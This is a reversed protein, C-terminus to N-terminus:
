FVLERYPIITTYGKNALYDYMGSRYTMMVFDGGWAGLSKVEGEYDPFLADKVKPLQMFAGLQTQYDDLIIEFDELTSVNQLDIVMQNLRQILQKDKPKNKYHNSVVAQTDQKKNLYVFYLEDLFNWKLSIEQVINTPSNQFIIPSFHRACAVDYGSTKFTKHNLEFVDIDMWQALLDLLTSSSGLGWEQPYELKTELCYRKNKEFFHPKLELAQKLIHLLSEGLKRDTCSIIGFSILDIETSFWLTEDAKKATWELISNSSNSAEIVSLCQGRKTPLALAKAGDTVIYEGILLLKGNARYTKM